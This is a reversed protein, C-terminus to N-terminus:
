LSSTATGRAMDMSSIFVCSREEKQPSTLGIRQRSCRNWRRFMLDRGATRYRPDKLGTQQAQHLRRVIRSYLSPRHTPTVIAGDAEAAAETAAHIRAGEVYPRNWLDHDAVLLSLAGFVAVTLAIAVTGISRKPNYDEFEAEKASDVVAYALLPKNDEKSPKEEM